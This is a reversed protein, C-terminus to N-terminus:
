VSHEVHRVIDRSTRLETPESLCIAGVADRVIFRPRAKTEAYVKALYEGIVGICMIQIGGVFYLPLVTSAWGPVAASNFLRVYIVWVSLVMTLVFVGFGIWSIMRLPFASFSTIGDLAFAVMKTFPYKSTGAVRTGREYYVISSSFGVVRVLARLFLNVERFERLEEVVRRSLFRFDAHNRIIDVGVARMLWYFAEATLRKFWTDKRRENRVGYVVDVDTGLHDDIMREIVNVDDQLDADISIVGDGPASFLGAMLAKQHGVNRSLRIGSVRSDRSAQEKVKAWTADRSGDDVYFITSSQSVKGTRQLRNLVGLLAATTQDLAEEENYCPVVIALTLAHGGHGPNRTAM